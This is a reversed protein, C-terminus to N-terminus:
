MTQGFIFWAFGAGIIYLPVAFQRHEEIEQAAEDGEGAGDGFDNNLLERQRALWSDHFFVPWVAMWTLLLAVLLAISNM